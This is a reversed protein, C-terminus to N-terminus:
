KQLKFVASTLVTTNDDLTARVKWCTGVAKDRFDANYIYQDAISDYRFATFPTNSPVSEVVADALDFGTSCDAQVRQLTWGSTNFGNPFSSGAGDGGLQFKVPVTRGRSFISTNDPNIPQLIGSVGGHIVTFSKSVSDSNGANDAGTCTYTVTGVGNSNRTDSTKQAAPSANVAGSLGDTVNCGPTPLTDTTTYTAATIGTVSVTPKTKDIQFNASDIGAATNGAVDTCSDSTVKVATGESSTTKSQINDGAMNAPFATVCAANLGSLSDSAQFKNTVDTNYWGAGNPSTTPGLDTITPATKDWGITDSADEFNGQADFVRLWVTKV